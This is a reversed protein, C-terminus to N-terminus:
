RNAQEHVESSFEANITIPEDYNNRQILIPPNTLTRTELGYLCSASTSSNCVMRLQLFQRHSYLFVNRIWCLGTATPNGVVRGGLYVYVEVVEIWLCVLLEQIYIVMFM